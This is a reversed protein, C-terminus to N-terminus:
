VSYRQRPPLRRWDGLMSREIGSTEGRGCLGHQLHHMTHEPAVQEPMGPELCVSSVAARDREDLAELRRGICIALYM